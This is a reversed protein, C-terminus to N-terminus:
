RRRENPRPCVVARLHLCEGGGCGLDDVVPKPDSGTQVHLDALSVKRGSASQPQSVSWRAALARRSLVETWRCDAVVEGVGYRLEVRAVADVRDPDGAVGSVAHGRDGGDLRRWRCTRLVDAERPTLPSPGIELATAVLEPDLFRQNKSARGIAHRTRRTARGQAPFSRPTIPIPSRSRPTHPAVVRPNVAQRSRRRRM